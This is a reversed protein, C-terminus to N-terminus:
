CVDGVDSSAQGGLASASDNLRDVTQCTHHDIERLAQVIDDVRRVDGAQRAQGAMQELIRRATM